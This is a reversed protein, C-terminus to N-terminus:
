KRRAMQSRLRAVVADTSTADEISKELLAARTRDRSCWWQSPTENLRALEAQWKAIDGAGAHAESASKDKRNFLGM